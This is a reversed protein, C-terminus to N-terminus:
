GRKSGSREQKKQADERSRRKFTWSTSLHAILIEINYQARWSYPYVDLNVIVITRAEKVKYGYGHEIRAIIKEKKV